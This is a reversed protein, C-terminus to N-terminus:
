KQISKMYANTKAEGLELTNVIFEKIEENTM